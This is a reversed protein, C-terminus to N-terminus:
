KSKVINTLYEVYINQSNKSQQSQISLIDKDQNSAFNKQQLLALNIIETEFGREIMEAAIYYLGIPVAAADDDTIRIDLCAPNILFIKM